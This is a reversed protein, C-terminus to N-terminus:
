DMSLVRVEPARANTARRSKSANGVLAGAAAGSSRPEVDVAAGTLTAREALTGLAAHPGPGVSPITATCNGDHDSRPGSWGEEPEAAREATSTEDAAACLGSAEEEDEGEHYCPPGM